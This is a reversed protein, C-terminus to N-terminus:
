DDFNPSESTHPGEPPNYSKFILYFVCYVIYQVFAAAFMIKSNDVHIYVQSM